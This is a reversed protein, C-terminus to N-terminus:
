LVRNALLIRELRVRADHAALQERALVENRRRRQVEEGAGPDLELDVVPEAVALVLVLVWPDYRKGVVIGPRLVRHPDLARAAIRARAGVPRRREDGVVRVPPVARLDVAAVRG